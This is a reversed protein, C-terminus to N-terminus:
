RSLGHVYCIKTNSYYIQSNNEFIEIDCQSDYRHNMNKVREFHVTIVHTLVLFNFFFVFTAYAFATFIDSPSVAVTRKSDHFM